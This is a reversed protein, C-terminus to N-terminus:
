EYSLQYKEEVLNQNGFKAKSMEKLAYYRKKATQTVIWVKGFGGRGVVM